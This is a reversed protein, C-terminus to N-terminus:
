GPFRSRCPVIGSSLYNGFNLTDVSLLLKRIVCKIKHVKYFCFKVYDSYIVAVFYVHCMLIATTFFYRVIHLSFAPFACDTCGSKVPQVTLPKFDLPPSIGCWILSAGLGM